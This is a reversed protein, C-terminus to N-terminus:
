QDGSKMYIYVEGSKMLPGDDSDDGEGDDSGDAEGENRNVEEGEGSPNLYMSPYETPDAGPANHIIDELIEEQTLDRHIPSPPDMTEAFHM